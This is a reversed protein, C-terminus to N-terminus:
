FDTQNSQHKSCIFHWTVTVNTLSVLTNSNNLISVSLNNLHYNFTYQTKHTIHWLITPSCSITLVIEAIILIWGGDGERVGGDVHKKSSTKQSWTLQSLKKTTLCWTFWKRKFWVNFQYFKCPLFSLYWQQMKCELRKEPILDIWSPQLPPMQALMWWLLDMWENFILQINHKSASHIINKRSNLM